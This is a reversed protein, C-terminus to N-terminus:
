YNWIISETKMTTFRSLHTSPFADIIYLNNISSYYSLDWFGFGVKFFSKSRSQRTRLLANKRFHLNGLSRNRVLFRRVRLFLRSARHEGSGDLSRSGVSTGGDVMVVFLRNDDKSLTENSHDTRPM